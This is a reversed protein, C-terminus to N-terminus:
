GVTITITDRSPRHRDDGGYVAGIRMVGRRHLTTVYVFSGDAELRTTGLPVWQRGPARRVIELLGGGAGQVTGRLTIRGGARARSPGLLTIGTYRRAYATFEYAAYSAGLPRFVTCGACGWVVVIWRGLAPSRFRMQRRTNTSAAARCPAEDASYDNVGPDLVCVEASYKSNTSGIDVVLEDALGLVVRWYEPRRNVNKVQVGLPLDPAAAISDGGAAGAAPAVALLTGVALVIALAGGAAIYARRTRCSTAQRRGATGPGEAM